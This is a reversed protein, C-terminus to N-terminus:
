SVSEVSLWSPVTCSNTADDWLHVWCGGATFSVWIFVGNHNQGLRKSTLMKWQDWLSSLRESIWMEIWTFSPIRGGKKWFWLKGIKSKSVLFPSLGAPAVCSPSHPATGWQGPRRAQSLPRQTAGFDWLVGWLRWWKSGAQRQSGPQSAPQAEDGCGTCGFDGWTEPSCVCM